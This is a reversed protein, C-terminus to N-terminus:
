MYESDIKELLPVLTRTNRLNLYINMERMWKKIAKKNEKFPKLLDGKKAIKYYTSDRKLYMVEEARFEQILRDQNVLIRKGWKRYLKLDGDYLLQVYGDVMNNETPVKVFFYDTGNFMIQFDRIMRKNLAIVTNTRNDPFLLQDNMVDLKLNVGRFHHGNITIAGNLWENTFLFEHGSINYYPSMWLRGNILLQRYISSDPGNLAEEEHIGIVNSQGQLILFQSLILFFSIAPKLKLMFVFTIIDQYYEDRQNCQFHHIMFFATNWLIHIPLVLHYEAM